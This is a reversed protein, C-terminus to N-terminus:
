SKEKGFRTRGHRGNFPDPLQAPCRKTFDARDGLCCAGNRETGCPNSASTLDLDVPLIQGCPWSESSRRRHGGYEVSVRELSARNGSSYSGARLVTPLDTSNDCDTISEAPMGTGRFRFKAAVAQRLCFKLRFRRIRAHIEVVGYCLRPIRAFAVPLAAGDRLHQRSAHIPRSPGISAFM